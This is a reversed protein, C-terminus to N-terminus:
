PSGATHWHSSYVVIHLYEVCSNVQATASVLSPSGQQRPLVFFAASTASTHPTASVTVTAVGTSDTKIGVPCSCLHILGQSSVQMYLVVLITDTVNLINYM